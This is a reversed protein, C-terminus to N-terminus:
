CALRTVNRATQRDCISVLKHAAAVVVMTLPIRTSIWFISKALGIRGRSLADVLFHQHTCMESGWWWGEVRRASMARASRCFSSTRVLDYMFAMTWFLCMKLSLITRSTPHPVPMRDM